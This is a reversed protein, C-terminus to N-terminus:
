GFKKKFLIVSSIPNKAQTKVIKLKIKGLNKKFKCKFDSKKKAQTKANKSWIKRLKKGQKKKKCVFNSNKSSNECNKVQNEGSKKLNLTLIQNKQKLKSM